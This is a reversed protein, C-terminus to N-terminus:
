VRVRMLLHVKQLKSALQYNRAFEDESLVGMLQFMGCLNVSHLFM